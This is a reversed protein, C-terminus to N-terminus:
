TLKLYSLDIFEERTLERKGTNNNAYNHVNFMFKIYDMKTELVPKHENIYDRYHESCTSCPLMYWLNEIIFDYVEKANVNMTFTMSHLFEWRIPWRKETEYVWMLSILKDETSHGSVFDEEMQM